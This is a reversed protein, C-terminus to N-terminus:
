SIVSFRSLRKFGFFGILITPLLLLLFGIGSRWAIAGGSEEQFVFRPLRDYDAAKLTEKRMLKPILVAHWKGVFERIQRVFNKQREGSTGAIDNLSEQMVVAPSLIRYRAILSQQAALQTEFREVEPLLRKQREQRIAYFRQTAESQSMGGPPQLEPHDGYYTSLLKEGASRTQNDAERIKSVFELRSPVPHLTTAAVNLLSPMIVVVVVWVGGLITANTASSFGFSNVLLAAALWFLAYASIASIGLGIRLITESDAFNVGGFALGILAIGVSAALIILLRTTIKGAAITKLSVAANAMSLQLTGNEREASLLNYALALILLPFIFVFVFAADFKGALLNLPNDQEYEQFLDNKETMIDVSAAFPYIDSQGISLAGLPAPPLVVPAAKGSPLLAAPTATPMPKANSEYESVEAKQKELQNFGKREAEAVAIKRAAAWRVGNYIGGAILALFIAAVIWLIKDAALLRLDHRM